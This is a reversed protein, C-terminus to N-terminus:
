LPGDSEAFSQEIVEPRQHLKRLTKPDLVTFMARRGGASRSVVVVRESDGQSAALRQAHDAAPGITSFVVPALHIAGGADVIVVVYSPNGASELELRTSNIVRPYDIDAASSQMREM